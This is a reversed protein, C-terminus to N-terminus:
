QALIPLVCALKRAHSMAWYKADCRRWALMPLVSEQLHPFSFTSLLLHIRGERVLRTNALFPPAAYLEPHRQIIQQFSPHTDLFAHVSSASANQTGQLASPLFLLDAVVLSFIADRAALL